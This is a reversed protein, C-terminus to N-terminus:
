GEKNKFVKCHYPYTIHNSLYSILHISRSLYRFRRSVRQFSYQLINILKFRLHPKGGKVGYMDRPVYVKKYFQILCQQLVIYTLSCKSKKHKLFPNHSFMPKGLPKAPSSGAQLTPSVSVHTRDRCRSSEGPPPCPLGSQYEQRSVGMSLSAQRAITWLTVSDSVVSCMCVSMIVYISPYTISMYFTLTLYNQRDTQRHRVNM